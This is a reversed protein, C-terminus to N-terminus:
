GHRLLEADREPLSHNIQVGSGIEFGAPTTLRPRVQLYWHLHPVIAEQRSSSHIVYNYDPDNLTDHLRQLADQLAIALHEQEQPTILGFDASHQKPVIWVECPVEAAFPVLTIFSHNEYVLRAGDAQEHEIIDCLLCRKLKNYYDAAVRERTAISGPVFGTAVIQSHPHRLSTGAQPGHNRFVIVAKVAEDDNYLASHRRAYTDIISEVEDTSMFPIDRNHFPSEIVVEHQGHDTTTRYISGSDEAVDASPRLVPYKNPVVRTRWRDESTSSLEFIIRPLMRENGICFPCTADKEPLESAEATESEIENPRQARDPAYIVWRNTLIDHRVEGTSVTQM